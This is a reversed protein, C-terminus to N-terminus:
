GRGYKRLTELLADVDIAHATHGDIGTMTEAALLANLIAAETAEVAAAFLDNMRWRSTVTDPEPFKLGRNGTAFALLLDGSSDEGLGGTRGIGLAARTALRACQHPLIPADTAVIVIISGAGEPAGPTPIRDPGLEEGVPVGAITLRRRQGHNAQVLVGVTHGDETRRSATGIGGKFEHCIM